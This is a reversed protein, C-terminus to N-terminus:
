QCRTPIQLVIVSANLGNPTEGLLAGGLGRGAPNVTLSLNARVISLFLVM